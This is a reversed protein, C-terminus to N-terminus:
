ARTRPVPNTTVIPDPYAGLPLEEVQGSLLDRAEAYAQEEDTLAIDAAIKDLIAQHDLSM